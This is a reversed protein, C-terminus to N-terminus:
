MKQNDMDYNINLTDLLIENSEQRTFEHSFFLHYTNALIVENM